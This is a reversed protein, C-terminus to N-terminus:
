PTKVGESKAWLYLAEDNRIWLERERNNKCSKIGLSECQDEIYLDLAEKNKRIFQKLTM